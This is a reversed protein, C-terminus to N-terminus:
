YDACHLAPVGFNRWMDIVQKKDDIAFLVDYYPAIDMSWVESKITTDPRFDGEKRMYLEYGSFGNTKLWGDTIEWGHSDGTRATLFIVKTGLAVHAQVISRCWENVSAFQNSRMWAEWNVKGGADTYQGVHQSNALTGDLDVIIAQTKM